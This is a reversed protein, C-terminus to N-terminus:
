SQIDRTRGLRRPKRYLPNGASLTNGSEKPSNGKNTKAFKHIMVPCVDKDNYLQQCHFCDMCENVNIHGSPEIAQVMCKQACIHCPDGCNSYRKLWNFLHLQGPIALAAGLPCLYRCFFREIFLGAFILAGAFLLYPWARMFRLVIATKFPEIEALHEALTLSYISIGVLGLFILYKLAWLREHIWWPVTIQPVKFFKAIKNTLEQLAGFPCLWGCFPGRGWLILSAAVSVWLIFILPELLFYEWRFDSLLANVFAFVNVVSLQAQAYFGIWFLTFTLFGIRIWDGLRPYKALQDQAFFIITLIGIAALLIAIQYPKQQWIRQWLANSEPDGLSQQGAAQESPPAEVILYADPLQYSLEFAIFVKELAGIARQVLLQLQWPNAPDFVVDKPTYFLAVEIFDPAGVAAVDGINKYGRDRFRLHEEGQTVQIRDFIGGRVYGSGRFSYHGLGMILFGNQDDELRDLYNKYEQEGLLSRAIAPVALSAAYLDIFIEDDEGKEPRAIARENGQDLFSQNIDANSLHLRRVSGNGILDIWDLTEDSSTDVTRTPGTTATLAQLGGLGLIRAARVSARKISDDMVMVTVTAGSVIDVPPPEGAKERAMTLIDTGIYGAIFDQIKEDPIGALVIPESHKVLRAGAITGDERLGILIYIPKGSYGIAGVFDTNLFVYGITEGDKLVPIIPADDRRTGYADAEPFITNVPTDALFVSLDDEAHVPSLGALLALTVAFLFGFIVKTM